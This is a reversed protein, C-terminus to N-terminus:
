IQEMLEQKIIKAITNLQINSTGEYIKSVKVDRYFKEAMYSTTFGVGGLWEICMSCTRDAVQSSFLKAMSAEKMIDGGM